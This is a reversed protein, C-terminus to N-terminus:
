ILKLFFVQYISRFANHQYFYKNVTQFIIPELNRRNSVLAHKTNCDRLLLWSGDLELRTSLPIHYSDGKNEVCSKLFKNLAFIRRIKSQRIQHVQEHQTINPKGGTIHRDKLMCTSLRLLPITNNSSPVEHSPLPSCQLSSM